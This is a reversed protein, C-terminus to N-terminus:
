MSQGALTPRDILSKLRMSRVHLYSDTAHNQPEGKIRPRPTERLNTQYTRYYRLLISAEEPGSPLLQVHTKQYMNKYIRTSKCVWNISRQPLTPHPPTTDVSMHVQLM